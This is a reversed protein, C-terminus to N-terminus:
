VNLTIAERANQARNRKNQMAKNKDTLKKDGPVSNQVKDCSERPFRRVKM